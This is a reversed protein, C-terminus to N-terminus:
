WKQIGMLKEKKIYTLIQKTYKPEGINPDHINILTIDEEPISEKIM